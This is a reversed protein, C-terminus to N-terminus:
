TLLSFKTIRRSPGACLYQVDNRQKAQYTGYNTANRDQTTDDTNMQTDM